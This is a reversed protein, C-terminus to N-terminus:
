GRTGWTFQDGRIWRVVAPDDLDVDELGARRAFEIVDVIDYAKGVLNGKIEVLRFPPVDPTVARVVIPPSGPYVGETM